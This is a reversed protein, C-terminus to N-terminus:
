KNYKNEDNLRKLYDLEENTLNPLEFKDKECSLEKFNTTEIYGQELAKLLKIKLRRSLEIRM